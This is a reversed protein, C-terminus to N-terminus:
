IEFYKANFDMDMIYLLYIIFTKIDVYVTRQTKEKLEPIKLARSNFFFMIVLYCEEM